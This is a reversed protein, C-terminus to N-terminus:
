EGPAGPHFQYLTFSPWARRDRDDDFAAVSLRGGFVAGTDLGVKNAMVLPRWSRDRRGQVTHGFVVLKGFDKDSSLFPERVWFRDYARSVAEEISDTPTGHALSLGAHVFHHNRTVHEGATEEIFALHEPPLVRDRPSTVGAGYSDLTAYGGNRLWLRSDGELIADLMMLEHNGRLFVTEPYLGRFAILDDIVGRSDEGRDVYDGLFVAYDGPRLKAQLLALAQRLLGRKGHIDGVAYITM